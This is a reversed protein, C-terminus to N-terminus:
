TNNNQKFNTKYFNIIKPKLEAEDVIHRLQHLSHLIDKVYEKFDELMETKTFSKDILQILVNIDEEKIEELRFGFTDDKINLDDKSLCPIPTYDEKNKSFKNIEKFEPYIPYILGEEILNLIEKSSYSKKELVFDENTACKFGIKYKETWWSFDRGHGESAVTQYEMKTSISKIKNFNKNYKINIFDILDDEKLYFEYFHELIKYKTNNDLKDYKNVIKDILKLEKELQKKSNDDGFYINDGKLLLNM